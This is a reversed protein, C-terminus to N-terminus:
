KLNEKLTEEVHHELEKFESSDSINKELLITMARNKIKEKIYLCLFMLTFALLILKIIM